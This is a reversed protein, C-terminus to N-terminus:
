VLLITPLTLHTYSVPAVNLDVRLLTDSATDASKQEQKEQEDEIIVVDDSLTVAGQPLELVDIDAYPIEIDGDIRVSGPAAQVNVVHNVTASQVPDQAITLDKGTLTLNALWDETRQWNVDGAITIDGEGSDVVGGLTARKGFVDATITGGTIPLPLTPSRVVPESLVVRGDFRPNTLRGSM